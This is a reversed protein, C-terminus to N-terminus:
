FPELYCKFLKLAIGGKVSNNFASMTAQRSKKEQELLPNTPAIICFDFLDDRQLINKIRFAWTGYIEIGTLHYAEPITTLYSTQISALTQRAILM